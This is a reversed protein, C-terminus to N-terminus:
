LGLCRAQSVFAQDFQHLFCLFRELVYLKRMVSAAESTAQSCQRIEPKQKVGGFFIFGAFIFIWTCLIYHLYTGHKHFIEFKAGRSRSSQVYRAISVLRFLNVSTDFEAFFCIVTSVMLSTIYLFFQLSKEFDTPIIAFVDIWLGSQDSM